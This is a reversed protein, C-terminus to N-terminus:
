SSQDLEKYSKYSEIITSKIKPIDPTISQINIARIKRQYPVKIHSPKSPQM